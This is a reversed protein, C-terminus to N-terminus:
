THTLCTQPENPSPLYQNLYQHFCRLWHSENRTQFQGIVFNQQTSHATPAVMGVLGYIKM